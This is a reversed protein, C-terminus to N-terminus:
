ENCIGSLFLFKGSLPLREKMYERVLSDTLRTKQAILNVLKDESERLFVEVSPDKSTIEPALLHFRFVATPDATRRPFALFLTVAASAIDGAAIVRVNKRREFRSMWSSFGIAASNLGGTSTLVVELPPDKEFPTRERIQDILSCVSDHTISGLFYIPDKPDRNKHAEM